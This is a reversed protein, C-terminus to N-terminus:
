SAYDRTTAFEAARRALASALETVAGVDWPSRVVADAWLRQPEVFRRRMPLVHFRYQRRVSDPTRGREHVDRQLRRELCVAAECEVFISFDFRRRCWSWDLLWLGDWLIVPAPDLRRSEPRRTHQAFDYEPVAVARGTRLRDLVTRVRSWDVAAPHDFNQAARRVPPLASLDRYFADLEVHRTPMPLADALARALAGKGAASGGVIAVLFPPATV